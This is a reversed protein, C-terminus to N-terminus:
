LLNLERARAVCETRNQVNLKGFINNLHKKVTGTALFLEDAIQQNSKGLAFLRLVEMERDSLPDILPPHILVSTGGFAALLKYIYNRQGEEEPKMLGLIKKVSEGQDLFVRMYDEPQALNLARRMSQIARATQGQEALAQAHLIDARISLDNWGHSTAFELLYEALKVAQSVDKRALLLYGYQVYEASNFHSIPGDVSYSRQEASQLDGRHLALEMKAAVLLAEAVPHLVSSQLHKEADKLLALAQAVQGNAQQLRAMSIQGYALTSLRGLQHSLRIGDELYNEAASLDNWEYLLNGLGISAEAATPLLQGDKWTSAQIAQEYYVRARHLGGLLTYGYALGYLAASALHASGVKLGIRSAEDLAAFSETLEGEAWCAGGLTLNVVGRVILNGEPLRKLADRAHEIAARSQGRAILLNARLAAIDGWIPHNADDAILREAEQLLEEVADSRNTFALAWAKAICLSAYQQLIPDIADMWQLLTRMEGRMLMVASNRDIMKAAFDMDKAAFAHAMAESLFGNSEFWEAAKHHLEPITNASAQRLRNQLVDAFLHHYRYWQRDDDLASVFLNSRHLEELVSQGDSEGTLANCLSGNMRELISTKLFFDRTKESQLSLVEDVLYDVVYHHSGTFATVFDEVDGRGQMSLAALQLGAIWGETRAELSATQEQSLSLGMTQSLFAAVEDLTFRLDNARIETLENRVRLRGLPLPPDARTLIALHFTHPQHSLLREILDHIQLNTLLHYDDLVLILDVSLASLAELLSDVIVELLPAQPMQLLSTTSRTLDPSASELAATLYTLFRLLDNDASDLSLWAVRQKKGTGERWEAMLSTKGSGAPASILTLPGRLGSDLKEVLRSRNVFNPRPIPFYLKTALLTM